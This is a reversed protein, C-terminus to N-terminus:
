EFCVCGEKTKCLAAAGCASCKERCNPTVSAEKAKENENIMFKKTVGIDVFDWPLIEDYSREMGNEYSTSNGNFFPAAYIAEIDIKDSFLSYVIAFQDDIENYADTDIVVKKKRPSKIDALIENLTM